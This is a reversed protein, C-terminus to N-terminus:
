NQQPAKDFTGYKAGNPGLQTLTGDNNIEFRFQCKDGVKRAVKFKLLSYGIGDAPIEVELFSGDRRWVTDEFYKGKGGAYVYLDPSGALSSRPDSRCVWRGILADPSTACGVMTVAVVLWCNRM